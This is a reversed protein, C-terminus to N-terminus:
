LIVGIGLSHVDLDILKSKESKNSYSLTFKDTLNLYTGFTITDKYKETKYSSYLTLMDDLSLFMQITSINLDNYNISFDQDALFTFKNLSQIFYLGMYKPIAEDKNRDTWKHKTAILNTSKIGIQNNLIKNSSLALDFCMSDANLEGLERYKYQLLIQLNLGDLKPQYSAAFIGFTDSHYSSVYPGLADSSTTPLNSIGYNSYGIAITGFKTPYVGTFVYWNYDWERSQHHLSLQGHKAQNLSYRGFLHNLSNDRNNINEYFFHQVEPFIPPIKAYSKFNFAIILIVFFLKLNNFLPSAEGM